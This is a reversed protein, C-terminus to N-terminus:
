QKNRNKLRLSEGIDDIALNFIEEAPSPIYPEGKRKAQAKATSVRNAMIFFAIALGLCILSFLVALAKILVVAIAFSLLLIIVAFTCHKVDSLFKLLKDDEEIAKNEEATFTHTEHTYM